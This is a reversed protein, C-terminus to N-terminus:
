NIERREKKGEENHGERNGFYYNRFASKIINLKGPKMNKLHEAKDVPYLVKM